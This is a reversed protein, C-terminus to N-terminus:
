GIPEHVNAKAIVARATCNPCNCTEGEALDCVFKAFPALATLLDDHSNWCKVIRAANANDIADPFTIASDARALRAKEGIGLQIQRPFDDDPICAPGPTHRTKTGM